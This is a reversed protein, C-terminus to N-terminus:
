YKDSVSFTTLLPTYGNVDFANVHAGKNLLVECVAGFSNQVAINLLSGLEDKTSVNGWKRDLLLEVLEHHGCLVAYLLPIIGEKTKARLKAGKVLLLEAVQKHANQTAIHLPTEHYKNKANVGAGRKILLKVLDLFGNECALSLVTLGNIDVANVNAGSALLLEVVDKKGNNVALFLPTQGSENKADLEVNEGILRKVEAKNGAKAFEHLQASIAPGSIMLCLAIWCFLTIPMNQGSM